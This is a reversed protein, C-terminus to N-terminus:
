FTYRIVQIKTFHTGKKSLELNLVSFTINMMYRSLTDSAIEVNSQM